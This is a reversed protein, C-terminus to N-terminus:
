GDLTFKELSHELILGIEWLDQLLGKPQGQWGAISAASGLLNKFSKRPTVGNSSFLFEQIALPM